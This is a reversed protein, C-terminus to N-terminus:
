RLADRAETVEPLGADALRYNALLRKYAARANAADGANRYARALGFMARSRNPTRALARDFWLVAEKARGVQLLLEGYLENVDKVPFPRGIPKPMRAQLAAARDMMAFAADHRGQAFLELAEMERLMVEAQERLEAAQAPAAAKRFEEIVSRVRAADALNVASLGLAFLEEINDFTTQGQMEAWRESEIIYRARMSGRDNRLAADGSGRGIESQEGYAHGGAHLPSSPKLAQPGSTKMAQEVFAIAEKTKSVRGQQTWEYQLWVLSHYDRAAISLGRRKAWAISANWSAEDSAAAEDWFGVQLFAHAPMHLAHSAAPAITAYARAAPLARAVLSGHDYAHLIYHAAGPHDPNRAFVKEAIAGAERRIPLAADGRPMTSLLALAHFAQAEDDAPYEAAVKAMTQAFAAHRAPKDGPGFLAEVARMFGQERATKAKAIRAEPTAGLKALAARGKDVEEFFWLPQSFSMAEGWYALAFSPDIKQAARFADIADEYGFSHLWAVGRLFDAQAAANGSNSFSVRGLREQGSM